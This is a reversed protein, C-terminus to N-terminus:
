HKIMFNLCDCKHCIGDTYNVSYSPGHDSRKHGCVCVHDGLEKIREQRLEFEAEALLKRAERVKPHQYFKTMNISM